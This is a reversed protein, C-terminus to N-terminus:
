FYKEKISYLEKANKFIDEFGQIQHSNAYCSLQLDQFISCNEHQAGSSKTIQLGTWGTMKLRWVQRLRLGGGGGTKEGVPQGRRRNARRWIRRPEGQGWEGVRQCRNRKGLAGHRRRQKSEPSGPRRRFQGGLGSRRGM